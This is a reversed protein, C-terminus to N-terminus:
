VEEDSWDGIEAEKIANIFGDDKQEDDQTNEVKLKDTQAKIQELRARQIDSTTEWNRHLLLDYDRIMSMLTSMARSQAKMFSAHKDWAQQIEYGLSDGKFTIEETKDKQDKVYMLKQARVIAVYQLQINHWLLDLPDEEKIGDLIEKTEEPLWKTFFGHKEANRNGLNKGKANQNGPQGGRKKTTCRDKENTTCCNNGSWKDRQKWVAIVRESCGLIGAIERNTIQGNHEDYIEKARARKGSRERPM